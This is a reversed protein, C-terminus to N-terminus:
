VMKDSIAAGINTYVTEAESEFPLLHAEDKNHKSM